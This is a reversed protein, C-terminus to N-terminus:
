VILIANHTFVSAINGQCGSNLGQFRLILEEINDESRQVHACVYAHMSASVYVCAYM